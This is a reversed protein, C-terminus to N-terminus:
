WTDSYQYSGYKSGMKFNFSCEDDGTSSLTCQLSGSGGSVSITGGLTADTTSAPKTIDMSFAMAIMIKPHRNYRHGFFKWSTSRELNVKFGGALLNRKSDYDLGFIYYSSKHMYNYQMHLTSLRGCVIGLSGTFQLGTKKAMAMDGSIGADLNACAGDGFPVDMVM